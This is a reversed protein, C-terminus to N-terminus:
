EEPTAQERLGDIARFITAITQEGLLATARAQAERWAPLVKELMADGAETLILTHTRADDGRVQELWGRKLLRKVDRTVTSKDMHLLRALDSPRLGRSWGLATLISLQSVRLGHPRLADDYLATVVRGLMRLRFGICDGAITKAARSEDKM